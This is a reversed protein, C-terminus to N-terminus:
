QSPWEFSQQEDIRGMRTALHRLRHSSALRPNMVSRGRPLHDIFRRMMIIFPRMM